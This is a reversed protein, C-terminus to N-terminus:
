DLSNWTIKTIQSHLTALSFVVHLSQALNKCNIQISKLEVIVKIKSIVLTHVVPYVRDDYLYFYHFV